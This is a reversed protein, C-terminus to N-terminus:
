ATPDSALLAEMQASAVREDLVRAREALTRKHAAALAGGTLALVAAAAAMWPRNEVALAGACGCAIGFTGDRLTMLTLSRGASLIVGVALVAGAQSRTACEHVLIITDKPGAGTVAYPGSLRASVYLRPTHVRAHEALERLREHLPGSTVQTVGPRRPALAANWSLSVIMTALVAATALVGISVGLRLAFLFAVGACVVLPLPLEVADRFSFM